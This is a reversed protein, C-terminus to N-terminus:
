VQTAQYYLNEEPERAAIGLKEANQVLEERDANSLSFGEKTSDQIVKGIAQVLETVSENDTPM